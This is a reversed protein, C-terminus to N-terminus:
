PLLCTNPPPTLVEQATDPLFVCAIPLRAPVLPPAPLRLTAPFWRHQDLIELSSSDRDRHCGMPFLGPEKSPSLDQHSHPRCCCVTGCTGKMGCTACSAKHFSPAPAALLLPEALLFLVALVSLLRHFSM